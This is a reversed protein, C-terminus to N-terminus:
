SRKLKDLITAADEDPTPIVIVGPESEEAPAPVASETALTKARPSVPSRASSERPLAALGPRAPGSAGLPPTEDPPETSGEQALFWSARRDLWAAYRSFTFMGDAGGGEIASPIKSIQGQRILGRVGSTGLLIECEPVRIQLDPRYALRQCIVALLCDALQASVGPQIEAPFAMVIRQLAEATSASHATTLVLHGTEAAGLTLRMTQPDRMEGVMLVDPDERMADRLGQEFSPTDRGVERQRVFARRPRFVYEIPEELTLIHRAETLNVEELLAALTSSKGCGSPGCAIILGHPREVLRRLDPHLNLRELTPQFTSLLRVALGVGRLTFLLNVRCRVGRLTRSLDFSRQELFHPWRDPGLLERAMAALEAASCPEGVLVLAGRIRLAAPLGPELHLDSAGRQRALDIWSDLNM